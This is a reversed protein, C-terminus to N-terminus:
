VNEKKASQLAPPVAMGMGEVLEKPPQQRSPARLYEGTFIPPVPKMKHTTTYYRHTRQIKGREQISENAIKKPLKIIADMIAEAQNFFNDHLIPESNM